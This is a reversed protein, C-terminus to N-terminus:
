LIKTWAHELVCTKKINNLTNMSNASQLKRLNYFFIVFTVVFWSQFTPDLGAM